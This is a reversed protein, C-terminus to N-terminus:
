RLQKLQYNFVIDYEALTHHALCLLRTDEFSHESQGSSRKNLHHFSLGWNPTCNDLVVIQQGECFTIGERQYRIKLDEKANKWAHYKRGPRLQTYRRM